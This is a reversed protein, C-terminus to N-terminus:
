ELSHCLFGGGGEGVASHDYGSQEWPFVEVSVGDVPDVAAQGSVTCPSGIDM